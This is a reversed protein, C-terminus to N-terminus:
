AAATRRAHRRHRCPRRSRNSNPRRRVTWSRPPGDASGGPQGTARGAIPQMKFAVATRGTAEHDLIPWLIQHFPAHKTGGDPSHRSAIPLHRDDLANIAGRGRVFHLMEAGGHRAPPRRRQEMHDADRRFATIKFIDACSLERYAVDRLLIKGVEAGGKASDSLRDIDNDERCRLEAEDFHSLDGSKDAPAATGLGRVKDNARRNLDIAIGFPKAIDLGDFTKAAGDQCAGAEILM